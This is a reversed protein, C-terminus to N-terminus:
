GDIDKRNVWWTFNLLLKQFVRELFGRDRQGFPASIKYVRWAAWAHVPPNVDGFSFRLGPDARQSEHVMRAAAPCNSRPSAPDIDAFAVMHFALDWSAYWPFEWNDPMSVVDRNYLHKWDKNRGYWRKPSPPPYVPDGQLWELVGYLYLQKSWLLSAYAQRATKLEAPADEASKRFVPGGRPHARSRPGSISIPGMRQGRVSQLRMRAKARRRVERRYYAAAKTGDARPESGVSRGPHCLSPVRGECLPGRQREPVTARFQDRKRHVSATRGTSRKSLLSGWRSRSVPSIRITPRACPLSRGTARVRAAGRGDMAFGCPRSSICLGRRRGEIIWRVKILIDNPSVKAYEVQVDFYRGGSFIGTDSLEFERDQKSRHQNEEILRQYPYERQPYKYLAKAYSHTPTSDLYFYCEKVDEGHNGQEGTLGFLREKLIPDLGNWLALAFCM